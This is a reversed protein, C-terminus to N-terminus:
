SFIYTRMTVMANTIPSNNLPSLVRLCQGTWMDWIRLTGDESASILTANDLSTCIVTVARSHGQLVRAVPSYSEHKSSPSSKSYSGVSSPAQSISGSSAAISLTSASLGVEKSISRTTSTTINAAVISMDIVHISGISDGVFCFDDM